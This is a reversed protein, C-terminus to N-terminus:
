SAFVFISGWVMFLLSGLLLVLALRPRRDAVRAATIGLAVIVIVWLVLNIIFNADVLRNYPSGVRWATTVAPSHGEGPRSSM